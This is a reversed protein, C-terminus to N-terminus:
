REVPQRLEKVNACDIPFRGHLRAETADRVKSRQPRIQTDCVNRPFSRVIAPRPGRIMDEEGCRSRSSRQRFVEDNRRHADRASRMPQSASDHVRVEQELGPVAAPSISGSNSFM